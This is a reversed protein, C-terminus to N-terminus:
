EPTYLSVTYLYLKHIHIYTHIYPKKNTWKTIKTQRSQDPIMKTKVECCDDSLRKKTNSLITEKCKVSPEALKIMDSPLVEPVGGVKTSVVQLSFFLSPNSLHSCLFGVQESASLVYLVRRFPNDLALPAGNLMLRNKSSHLCFITVQRVSPLPLYSM